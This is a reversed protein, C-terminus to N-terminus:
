CYFMVNPLMCKVGRGDVCWEGEEAFATALEELGQANYWRNSGRELEGQAERAKRHRESWHDRKGETREVFVVLPPRLGATQQKAAAFDGASEATTPMFKALRMHHAGRRHKSAGHALAQCIQTTSYRFETLAERREAVSVGNASLIRVPYGWHLQRVCMLQKSEFFERASYVGGPFFYRGFFIKSWPLPNDASVAHTSSSRAAGLAPSGFVVLAPLPHCATANGLSTRVRHLLMVADSFIHFLNNWFWPKIFFVSLTRSRPDCDATVMPNEHAVIDLSPVSAGRLVLDGRLVRHVQRVAAVTASDTGHLHVSQGEIRVDELALLRPSVDYVGGSIIRARSSLLRSGYSKLEDNCKPRMTGAAQTPLSQLMSSSGEVNETLRPTPVSRLAHDRSPVGKLTAVKSTSAANIDHNGAGARSGGSALAAGNEISQQPHQDSGQRYSRLIDEARTTSTVHTEDVHQVVLRRPALYQTYVTTVAAAVLLFPLLQRANKNDPVPAKPSM